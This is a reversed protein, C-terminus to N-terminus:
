KPRNLIKFEELGKRKGVFKVKQAWIKVNKLATARSHWWFIAEDSLLFRFERNRVFPKSSNVFKIM